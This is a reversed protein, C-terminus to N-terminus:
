CARQASSRRAVIQFLHTHERHDATFQLQQELTTLNALRPVQRLGGAASDTRTSAPRVWIRLALVGATAGTGLPFVADKGFMWWVAHPPLSGSSGIKQSNWYVEYAADPTAPVYLGLPSSTDGLNIRKRYWAYGRYGPHGQAGWPQDAQLPQWGSDDFDPNSWALDDGTHFQWAGTIPVSSPGLQPATFTEARASISLLPLLFLFALM